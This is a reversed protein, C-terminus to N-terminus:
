GPPEPEIGPTPAENKQQALAEIAPKYKDKLRSNRQPINMLENLGANLYQTTAPESKSFIDCPYWVGMAVVHVDSVARPGVNNAAFAEAMNCTGFAAHFMVIPEAGDPDILSIVAYEQDFPKRVHTTSEVHALEEEEEEYDKEEPPLVHAPETFEPIIPLEQVEGGCAAVNQLHNKTSMARAAEARQMVHKGAQEFKKSQATKAADIATSIEHETPHLTKTLAFNHDTKITLQDFEDNDAYQVLDKQTTSFALIRFAPRESTPHRGFSAANILCYKFPKSPLEKSCQLTLAKKSAILESNSTFLEQQQM